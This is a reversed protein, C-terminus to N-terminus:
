GHSETRGVQSPEPTGHLGYHDKSLDIWVVGVPGNPGPPITAKTHTPDADWFLEPNYKFTPNRQVGNVKWEGIPLPDHESGTTVPAFFITNGEVDAVTVTSSGPMCPLTAASRDAM